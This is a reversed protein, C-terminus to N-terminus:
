EVLEVDSFFVIILYFSTVTDDTVPCNLEILVQIIIFTALLLKDISSICFIVDPYILFDLVAVFCLNEISVLLYSLRLLSVETFFDM